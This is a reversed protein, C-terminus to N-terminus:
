TSKWEVFLGAFGTLGGGSIADKHSMYTEGLSIILKTARNKRKLRINKFALNKVTSGLGPAASFCFGQV